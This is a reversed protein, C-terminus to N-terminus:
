GHTEEEIKRGAGRPQYLLKMNSRRMDLKVKNGRVIPIETNLLLSDVRLLSGDKAVVYAHGDKGKMWEFPKVIAKDEEDVVLEDWQTNPISYCSKYDIDLYAHKTNKKLNSMLVDLRNGNINITNDFPSCGTLLKDIRKISGNPWDIYARGDAGLFWGTTPIIKVDDKHLLLEHAILTKGLVFERNVRVAIHPLMLGDHGEYRSRRGM